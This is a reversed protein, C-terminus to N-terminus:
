QIYRNSQNEVEMLVLKDISDHPHDQRPCILSRPFRKPKTRKTAKQLIRLKRHGSQEAGHPEAPLQELRLLFKPPSRLASMECRASPAKPLTNERPIPPAAPMGVRDAAPRPTTRRAAPAARM